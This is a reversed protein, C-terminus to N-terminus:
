RVAVFIILLIGLIGGIVSCLGLFVGIFGVIKNIKSQKRFAKVLAFICLVLGILGCPIPSVLFIVWFLMETKQTTAQDLLFVALSIFPFCYSVGVIFYLNFIRSRENPKGKTMLSYEDGLINEPINDLEHTM